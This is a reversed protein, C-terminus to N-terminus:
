LVIRPKRKGKSEEKKRGKMKKQKAKRRNKEKGTQTLEARGKRYSKKLTPLLSSLLNGHGSEQSVSITLHYIKNNYARLNYSSKDHLLLFSVYQSESYSSIELTKKSLCKTKCSIANYTSSATYDLSLCHKEVLKSLAM